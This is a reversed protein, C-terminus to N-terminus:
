SHKILITELVNAADECKDTATELSVYIEKMKIVQIANTENEFLDAVAEEFIRDAQNEYENVKHLINQLPIPNRFDRLMTVGKSLEAISLHLTEILQAMAPPCEKIKYLIFRHASGDLYDMIDDLASTLLHIDERDFPTVFTASLEAFINHAITDARHEHETIQQSLIQREEASVSSFKKLLLSADYLTQAAQEFYTYFKEDHPLLTQILNDLKM